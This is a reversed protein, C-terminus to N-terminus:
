VDSLRKKKRACDLLYMNILEQYSIGLERGLAKFYDIIEHSLDISVAKKVECESFPSKIETLQSLDYAKKM